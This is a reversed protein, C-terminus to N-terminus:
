CPKGSQWPLLVTWLLSSRGNGRRHTGSNATARNDSPDCERGRWHFGRWLLAYGNRLNGPAQISTDDSCSVYANCIAFIRLACIVLIFMHCTGFSSVMVDFIDPSSLPCFFGGFFCLGGCMFTDILDLPLALDLIPFGCDLFDLGCIWTRYYSTGLSFGACVCVSSPLHLTVRWICLVPWGGPQCMAFSPDLQCFFPM